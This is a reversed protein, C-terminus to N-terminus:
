EAMATRILLERKGEMMGSMAETANLVLNVAVQQLEVRDGVVEPLHEAFETRVSVGNKTTEAQTLEIVEHIVPNIALCDKRPPSKKILNRIRGIVDSARMANQEIRALAQRVKEVDSPRRDLWRLAAQASAVVATNPQNVEHAISATLQGLMAVRNAHALEMQAERYRQEGERAEAEARKRESLDLVFTVGQDRQEDFAASGILVPVRSGDKRLYEKEFPQVAGTMAMEAQARASRDRWEPPTLDIYRLQGSILDERDYGLTELFSHNADVIVGEG